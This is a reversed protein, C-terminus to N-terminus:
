DKPFPTRRSMGPVMDSDTPTRFSCATALEDRPPPCTLSLALPQVTPTQLRWSDLVPPAEPIPYQFRASRSPLLHMEPCPPVTM